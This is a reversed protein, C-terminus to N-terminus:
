KSYQIWETACAQLFYIILIVSLLGYPILTHHTYIVCVVQIHECLHSWLISNIFNFMIKHFLLSTQYYKKRNKLQQWDKRTEKTHQLTISKANRKCEANKRLTWRNLEWVYVLRLHQSWLFYSFTPHLSGSFLVNKKCTTTKIFFVMATKLSLDSSESLIRQLGPEM